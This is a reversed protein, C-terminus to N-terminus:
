SCSPNSACFFDINKQGDNWAEETKKGGRSRKEERKSHIYTQNSEIM